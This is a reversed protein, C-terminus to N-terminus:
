HSQFTILHNGIFNFLFCFGIALVNAFSVPLNLHRVFIYVMGTNLMLNFGSVMFFQIYKIKVGKQTAQGKFTWVNNWYFNNSAAICFSFMNALLYHIQIYAVHVLLNFVLINVITGSIGVLSFKILKIFFQM